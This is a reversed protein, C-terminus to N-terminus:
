QVLFHKRYLGTLNNYSVYNWEHGFNRKIMGNMIFKSCTSTLMDDILRLVHLKRYYHRKKNCLRFPSFITFMHYQCLWITTLSSDRLLNLAWVQFTVMGHERQTVRWHDAKIKFNLMFIYGNFNAKSNQVWCVYVGMSFVHEFEIWHVDWSSKNSSLELPIQGMFDCVWWWSLM